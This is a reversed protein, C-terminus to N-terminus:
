RAASMGAYSEGATKTDIARQIVYSRIADAKQHELVQSFSVMGQEKLAGDLVIKFWGNNGLFGSYRLDPNVGGSVVDAGHCVLCYRGYLKRGSDITAADATQAPPNLVKAPEVPVAPLSATGRLKFALIRGRNHEHGGSKKSLEGGLIAYGGGWGALVAIYQQGDVEYTMPGAMIATQVPMSWLKQGSDARYVNLNGLTDGQAVLNGATTLVGGNWPALHQARWVARQRVPDWALLYGKERDWAAKKAAPETLPVGGSLSIGINPGIPSRKYTPDVAFTLSEEQTPIYILGTHPNFAMPQWNHAGNPHPSIDVAKGTKDYRATRREIPRGTKLDIGDAWTVPVFPKASILEGTRRDLVYFFGDKAAHMLVKRARGNITLNALVMDQTTDYDWVDGPVVQYHWAYEGTSAKVALISALFWNDGGGPSRYKQVWEVGNATGFYILDLDPDYAIAGWVTGGGGAKWWQGHWTKAAKRLIPAEFPKSPDGPVTYFRWVLRGTNADYASIFGRVGYESGSSGIIIRDNIARPASTITYPKSRDFTQVSWVSKGNAADLAILRGDLTGVFVKGKWVAVGRNVADCCIKILIERSVQPDYSWLLRGTKADLAKVMSWATSTYMVGDVVLPTAEQGRSTDLDYYWALKLSGVNTANIQDLPSFRQESYTRSYSMWNGPERDAAILRAADVQAPGAKTRNQAEAHHTWFTAVVMLLTVGAVFASSKKIM